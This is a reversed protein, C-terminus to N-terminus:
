KSKGALYQNYVEYNQLARNYIRVDDITGTAYHTAAPAGSTYRGIDLPSTSNFLSAPVSGVTTGAVEAGNLYVKLTSGNYVGVLHNWETDTPASTSEFYTANTGDGSVTLYIKNDSFVQLAYSYNGSGNYKAIHVKDGSATRKYWYSITGATTLDLSASDAVTVYQSSGSAFKYAGKYIGESNLTPLNTITGTNSGISSNTAVTGSTEDLKWWGVCSQDCPPPDTGGYLTTVEASSLSTTHIRVDDINGIFGNTTFNGNYNGIYAATATSSQISGTQTANAVVTGDLYLSVQNAGLTGDYVCAIHHWKNLEINSSAYTASGWAGTGINCNTTTTNRWDIQIGQSAAPSWTFLIQSTDSNDTPYFWLSVAAKNTGGLNMGTPTVFYDDTGDFNYAQKFKGSSSLQPTNNTGTAGNGTAHNKAYRHSDSRNGSPEDLSWWGFLSTKMLSSLAQYSTGQGGNYLTTREASSLTRKWFAVEDIRGNWYDGAYEGPRGISLNATGDRPTGTFATEDAAGNNASIYIKSTSSDYYGVLYYWRQTSPSGLTNAVASFYSTSNGVEFYFRDTAGGIYALSYELTANSGASGWKSAIRGYTPKTDLYVWAALTFSTAGTSLAENDAITLYETASATFQGAEGTILGVIGTNSGVTNNDTLHNAGVSDNRTGSAEDLNWWATLSTTLGSYNSLNAYGQGRGGNYLFDKEASSLAKKWIGVSDLRGNLYKPTASDADGGLRLTRSNDQAGGTIGSTSDIAGNNVQISLTDTTSDYWTAVFYWKGATPTGFSTARRSSITTGNSVLSKFNGDTSNYFLGYEYNGATGDDVFKTVFMADATLTEFYVWTAISFSIDGMSLAANDLVSLTELSASAFSGALNKTNAQTVTNTDTLNNQNNVIANNANGDFPYYAHANGGIPAPQRVTRGAGYSAPGGTSRGGILAQVSPFYHYLGASTSIFAFLLLWATSVKVKQGLLRPLQM